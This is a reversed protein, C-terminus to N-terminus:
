KIVGNSKKLRIFSEIIKTSGPFFSHMIIKGNHKIQYVPVGGSDLGKFKQGQAELSEFLESLYNLRNSNSVSENFQFKIKENYM